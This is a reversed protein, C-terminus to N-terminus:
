EGDTTGLDVEVPPLDRMAAVLRKLAAAQHVLPGRISIWFRDATIEGVPIERVEIDTARDSLIESVQAADYGISEPDGIGYDRLLAKVADPDDRSLEGFRNDGLMYADATEQDVDWLLVKVRELGARACASTVGHGAVIMRNEKRALIPRTQGFRKISAALKRIQEPPHRRANRPNNVLEGVPMDVVEFTGALRQKSSKRKM